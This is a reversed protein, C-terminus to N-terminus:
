LRQNDLRNQISNLLEQDTELQVLIKRYTDTDMNEQSDIARDIRENAQDAVEQMQDPEMGQSIQSQYEQQIESVESYAKVFADQQEPTFDERDEDMAGPQQATRDQHQAGWEQQQGTRDQHQAQQDRNQQLADRDQNQVGRDQHQTSRDQQQVSGDQLQASAAFNFGLTLALTTLFTLLKNITM